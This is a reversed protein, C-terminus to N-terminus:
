SELIEWIVKIEQDSKQAEKIKNPSAGIWITMIMNKGDDAQISCLWYCNQCPKWTFIRQIEEPLSPCSFSIVDDKTTKCQFVYWSAWFENVPHKEVQEKRIQSWFAFPHGFLDDRLTRVLDTKETTSCLHIVEKFFFCKLCYILSLNFIISFFNFILLLKQFICVYHNSGCIESNHTDAFSHRAHLRPLSISIDM